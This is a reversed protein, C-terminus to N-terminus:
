ASNPVFVTAADYTLRGDKLVALLSRVQASLGGALHLAFPFDFSGLIKDESAVTFTIEDGAGLTTGSALEFTAIFTEGLAQSEELGTVTVGRAQLASAYTDLALCPIDGPTQVNSETFLHNPLRAQVRLGAPKTGLRLASDSVVERIRLAIALRTASQSPPVIMSLFQLPDDCRVTLPDKRDEPIAATDRPREPVSAATPAAVPVPASPNPSAKLAQTTYVPYLVRADYVLHGCVEKSGDALHLDVQGHIRRSAEPAYLPLDGAPRTTSLLPRLPIVATAIKQSLAGGKHMHIAVEFCQTEFARALLANALTTQLVFDYQPNRGGKPASVDPGVGLGSVSLFTLKEAPFYKPSLQAENIRIALVNNIPEVQQASRDVAASFAAIDAESTPDIEFLSDLEGFVSSRDDAISEAQSPGLQSQKQQSNMLNIGRTAGGIGAVVDGAAHDQGVTPKGSTLARIQEKAEALMREVSTRLMRESKQDTLADRLKSELLAVKRQLAPATEEEANQAGSGAVSGLQVGRSQFSDTGSSRRKRILELAESMEAPEIGTSSTVISLKKQAEALQSATIKLSEELETQKKKAEELEQTRVALQELRVKVENSLRENEATLHTIKAKYQAEQEARELMLRKIQANDAAIDAMREDKAATLEARMAEIDRKYDQVMQKYAALQDQDLEYRQVQRQLEICTRRSEQLLEKTDEYQKMAHAQVEKAAQLSIQLNDYHAQLLAVKAKSERLEKRLAAIENSSAESTYPDTLLHAASANRQPQPPQQAVDDHNQSKVSDAANFAAPSEPQYGPLHEELRNLLSRVLARHDAVATEVSGQPQEPFIASSEAPLLKIGRSQHEYSGAGHLTLAGASKPRAPSGLKNARPVPKPITSTPPRVNGVHTAGIHALREAQRAKRLEAQLSAREAQLTRILDAEERTSPAPSALASTPALQVGRTLERKSKEAQYQARVQERKREEVIKNMEKKMEAYERQLERYKEYYDVTDNM